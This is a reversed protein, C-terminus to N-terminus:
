STKQTTSLTRKIRNQFLKRTHKIIGDPHFTFVDHMHIGFIHHSNIAFNLFAEESRDTLHAAESLSLFKSLPLKRTNYRTSFHREIWQTSLLGKPFKLNLVM